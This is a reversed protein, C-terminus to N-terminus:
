SVLFIRGLRSIPMMAKVLKEIPGKASALMRFEHWEKNRYMEAQGRSRQDLWLRLQDLTSEEPAEANDIMKAHVLAADTAQANIRVEPSSTSVSITGM